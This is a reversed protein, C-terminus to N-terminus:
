IVVKTSIRFSNKDFIQIEKQKKVLLFTFRSMMIDQKFMYLLFQKCLDYLSKVNHIVLQDDTCHISTLMLSVWFTIITIYYIM